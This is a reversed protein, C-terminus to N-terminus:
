KAKRKKNLKVLKQYFEIPHKAYDYPTDMCNFRSDVLFAPCRPCGKRPKTDKTKHRSNYECFFCDNMVSYYAHKKLWEWKLFVINQTPNGKRQEAIWKWMQLCYKWTQELTLKKM